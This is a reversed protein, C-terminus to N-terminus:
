VLTKIMELLQRLSFPKSLYADAGAKLCKEQDGPMALATVAIIPVAALGPLEDNRIREIAELGDMVPMQVDMLIAVPLAKRAQELAELGNRAVIVRYGNAELFDSLTISNAENDEALLVL